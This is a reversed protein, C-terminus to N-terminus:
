GVIRLANNRNSEVQRPVKKWQGPSHPQNTDAYRTKILSPASRLCREKFIEIDIFSVPTQVVADISDYLAKSTLGNPLSTEEIPVRVPFVPETRKLSILNRTGHQASMTM